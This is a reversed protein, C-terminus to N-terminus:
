RCAWGPIAAAFVHGVKVTKVLNVPFLAAKRETVSLLLDDMGDLWHPAAHYRLNKCPLKLSSWIHEMDEGIIRGFGQAIAAHFALQCSAVHSSGHMYGTVFRTGEALVPLNAKLHPLFKCSSDFAFLQPQRQQRLHDLGAVYYAFQEPTHQPLFLGRGPIGDTCAFGVIGHIDLMGSAASTERACHIATSCSTASATNVRAQAPGSHMDRWSDVFRQLGVRDSRMFEGFEPRITAFASGAHAFRSPKTCADAQTGILLPKGAAAAGAFVSYFTLKWM